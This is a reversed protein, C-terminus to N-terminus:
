GSRVGFTGPAGLALVNAGLAVGVGRSGVFAGCSALEGAVEAPDPGLLCSAGSAFVAIVTGRDSVVRRVGDRSGVVVARAAVPGVDSGIPPPCVSGSCLEVRPLITSAALPLAVVHGSAVLGRGPGLEVAGATARLRVLLGNPLVRRVAVVGVVPREDGLMAASVSPAGLALPAGLLRQLLTGAVVRDLRPTLGEAHM